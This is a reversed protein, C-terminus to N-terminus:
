LHVKLLRKHFAHRAKQCIHKCPIYGVLERYLKTLHTHSERNKEALGRFPKSIYEPNCLYQVMSGFHGPLGAKKLAVSDRMRGQSTKLGTLFAPEHLSSSSSSVTRGKLSPTEDFSLELTNCHINLM